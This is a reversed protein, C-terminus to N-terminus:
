DAIAFVKGALSACNGVHTKLKARSNFASGFMASASLNASRGIRASQCRCAAAAIELLLGNSSVQISKRRAHGRIL